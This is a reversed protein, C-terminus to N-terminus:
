DEMLLCASQVASENTKANLGRELQQLDELWQTSSGEGNQGGLSSAAHWSRMSGGSPCRMLCPTDKALQEEGETPLKGFAFQCEGTEYDPTMTLALGMNQRFFNQTPIKCSNVCISACQSEELFRCRKVLVGQNKGDGGDGNSDDLIPPIDNVTCEGMLWTGGVVTAWACMKASFEPFPRAFWTPYRDLIFPPFLSILVDRSMEQIQTRNNYQANMTTTIDIIGSFDDTARQSDKIRIANDSRDLRESLKTRFASMLVNDILPGLPGHISSYDPKTSLPPGEVTNGRGSRSTTAAWTRRYRFTVTARRSFLSFADVSTCASELFLISFTLLIVLPLFKDRQSAHKATPSCAHHHHHHNMM